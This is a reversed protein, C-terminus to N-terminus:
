GKITRNDRDKTKAVGELQPVIGKKTVSLPPYDKDSVKNNRETFHRGLRDIEWNEPIEGLWSIGTSKYQEYKKM